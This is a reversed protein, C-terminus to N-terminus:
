KDVILKGKHFIKGESYFSEDCNYAIEGNVHIEGGKLTHWIMDVDGEIVVVGGNMEEGVSSANGKIVIKGGKMQMGIELADGNVVVTGNKMDCCLYEGALGMVVINKSNSFGLFMIEELHSTYVTFDDENSSNILASMFLGAKDKFDKEDQFKGLMLSFRTVDEATYDLGKIVFLANKYNLDTEEICHSHEFGFRQWADVIQKIGKSQCVGTKRTYIGKEKKYRKFKKSAALQSANTRINERAIATRMIM